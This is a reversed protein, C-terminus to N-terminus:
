FSFRETQNDIEVEIDFSAEIRSLNYLKSFNGNLLEEKEYVLKGMADFIRVMVRRPQDNVITLIYGNEKLSTANCKILVPLTTVVEKKEFSVVDNMSGFEDEVIFTYTGYPLAEFNYPRSFGDLKKIKEVFVKDGAENLITVSVQSTSGKYILSFIAEEKKVVEIISSRTAKNEGENAFLATSLVTLLVLLTVKAKM